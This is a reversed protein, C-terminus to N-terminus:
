VDPKETALWRHDSLIKGGPVEYNFTLEYNRGRFFFTVVLEFKPTTKIWEARATFYGVPHERARERFSRYQARLTEKIVRGGPLTVIGFIKRASIPNVPEESIDEFILTMKGTAHDVVLRVHYDRLVVTFPYAHPHPTAHAQIVEKYNVCGLGTPGLLLVAMFYVIRRMYIDGIKHFHDIQFKSTIQSLSALKKVMRLCLLPSALFDKIRIVM